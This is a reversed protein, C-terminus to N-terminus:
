LANDSDGDICQLKKCPVSDTNCNVIQMRGVGVGVGVGVGEVHDGATARGPFLIDPETEERTM